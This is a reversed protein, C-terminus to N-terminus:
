LSRRVLGRPRGGRAVSTWSHTTRSAPSFGEHPSYGVSSAARPWTRKSRVTALLRVLCVVFAESEETIFGAPNVVVPTGYVKPLYQEERALIGRKVAGDVAGFQGEVAAM